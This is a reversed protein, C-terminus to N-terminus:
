EIKLYDWDFWLQLARMFLRMMNNGWDASFIEKDDLFFAVAEDEYEIKLEIESEGNPSLVTTIISEPM